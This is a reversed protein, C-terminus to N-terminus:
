VKPAANLGAVRLPALEGVPMLDALSDAILAGAALMASLNLTPAWDSLESLDAALALTDTSTMM